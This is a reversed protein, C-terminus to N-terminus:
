SLVGEADEVSVAGTASFGAAGLLEPPSSLGAGVAVGLGSAAGPDSLPLVFSFSPEPVVVPLAEVM